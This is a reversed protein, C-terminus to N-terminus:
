AHPHTLDDDYKLYAGGINAVRAALVKTGFREPLVVDYPSYILPIVGTVADGDLWVELTDDYSVEFGGIEDGIDFRVWLNNAGSVITGSFPGFPGNSVLWASDDYDAAAYETSTDALPVLMYRFSSVTTGSPGCPTTGEEAEPIPFVDPTPASRTNVFTRYTSACEHLGVMDAHHTIEFEDSDFRATDMFSIKRVQGASLDLGVPLDLVLLETDPGGSVVDVIKRFVYGASHRIVIYERGSAPGGIYVFGTSKVEIQSDAALISSALKFDAKFTPLWFGGTRGRNRYLLDRFDAMAEKGSLWWRHAQGVLARGLGDVRFTRGVGPDFDQMDREYDIKLDEVWNPEAVLVPLGEYVPATSAAPTWPNNTTFRFQATVTAVAASPQSVDGTDEVIGRRLPYIKTGKPWARTPQDALWIRDADVASIQVIEYDLATPGAILVLGGNYYAWERRTTDFLINTTSGAILKNPVAVGEWYVPIMVDQGALRDMFLDWFTREADVLLFDAEFTRRPTERISRRQEAGSKSRLVDSLFSLRESMPEKRNPRFSFVPLDIDAM